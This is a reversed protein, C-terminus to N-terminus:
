RGKNDFTLKNGTFSYMEHVNDWLMVSVKYKDTVGEPLSEIAVSSETDSQAALRVETKAIGIMSGNEKYVAMLLLANTENDSLNRITVNAKLSSVGALSTLEKTDDCQTYSASMSYRHWFGKETLEEESYLETLDEVCYSQRMMDLITEGTQSLDIKVTKFFDKDLYFAPRLLGAKQAGVGVYTCGVANSGVRLVALASDGGWNNTDRLYYAKEIDGFNLNSDSFVDMVGLKDAYMM